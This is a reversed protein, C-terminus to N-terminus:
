SFNIKKKENKPIYEDKLIDVKLEKM